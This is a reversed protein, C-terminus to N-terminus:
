KKILKNFHRTSLTASILIVWSAWTNCYSYSSATLLSPSREDTSVHMSLMVWMGRPRTWIQQQRATMSSKWLEKMSLQYYAATIHACTLLLVCSLFSLLYTWYVPFLHSFWSHFDVAKLKRFPSMSANMSSHTIYYLGTNVHHEWLCLMLRQDTTWLCLIFAKFM